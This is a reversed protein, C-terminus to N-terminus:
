LIHCRDSLRSRLPILRHTAERITGNSISLSRPRRSRLMTGTCTVCGSTCLRIDQAFIASIASSTSSTSPTSAFWPSTCGLTPRQLIRESITRGTKKSACTSRPRTSRKSYLLLTTSMPRLHPQSVLSTCAMTSSTTTGTTPKMSKLACTKPICPFQVTSKKLSIM